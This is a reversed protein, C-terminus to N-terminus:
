SRLIYNKKAWKDVFQKVDSYEYNNADDAKYDKRFPSRGIFQDCLALNNRLVTWICQKFTIKDGPKLNSFEPNLILVPRVLNGVSDVLFTSDISNDYTVSTACDKAIGPSRLWWRTYAPSILDKSEAYEEKSLLTIGVVKINDM